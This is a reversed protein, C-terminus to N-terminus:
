FVGESGENGFQASGGQSKWNPNDLSTGENGFQVPDYVENLRKELEDEDADDLQVADEIIVDVCEPIRELVYASVREVVRSRQHWFRGCLRVVLMPGDLEVFEVTGTIGVTRSEDNTGFMTGLDEMCKALVAKANEETLTSDFDATVAAATTATTATAGSAASGGPAAPAAAPVASSSAAAPKAWTTVGTGENWYYTNGSAPDLIATWGGALSGEKLIRPGVGQIVGALSAASAM